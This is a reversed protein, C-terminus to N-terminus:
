PTMSQVQSRLLRGLYWNTIDNQYTNSTTKSYGDNTSVTVQTANGWQDFQNATTMTPLATGNLDWGSEVSQSAYPFYRNGAAVVCGSGLQPNLCSYTHDTQSLVGNNGAGALTKKVLSPLGTYPYDQRYDTRVTVGTEVSTAETWAFGLLGRGTGLEAQLGGYKYATTIFAGLGNNRKVQSVFYM